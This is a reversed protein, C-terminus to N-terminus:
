VCAVSHPCVHAWLTMACLAPHLVCNQSIGKCNLLLKRWVHFMASTLGTEANQSLSLSIPGMVAYPLSKGLQCLDCPRSDRYSHQDHKFGHWCDRMGHMMELLALHPHLQQDHWM